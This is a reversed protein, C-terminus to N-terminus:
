WSWDYLIYTAVPNSTNITVSLLFSKVLYDFVTLWLVSLVLALLKFFGFSTILSRWNCFFLFCLPWFNSSVLLPLWLGDIVSPCVICPGFSQLFWFLYDFVTLWLLASLLLSFLKFIGFPAILFRWDCFSLCCLPWFNSSVLLPLWLDDIVSPCAVCPCFTQHFWSPYDSVTLWLLVSLM